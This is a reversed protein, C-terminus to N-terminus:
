TTARDPPMWRIVIRETAAVMGYFIIGLASAVLITAWLRPPASNYYQNFNLIAGGLGDPIGSPLEGIIAGVVSATASIKLATFVYPVANPLSLKTLVQSRRAAYSAFLERATTPVSTLGRLTNITVPFFSLYAAIVSVSVWRPMGSNSLGIVIMPAIALIPVTQSAVVFPMLGRQLVGSQALLIALMLGFLSGFTFGLAAEGWTFLAAKLLLVGLPAGNTQAPQFFTGIIDWTHPLNLDNFTRFTDEGTASFVFGQLLKLGEWILFLCGIVLLFIVVSRRVTGRRDTLHDTSQLEPTTLAADTM